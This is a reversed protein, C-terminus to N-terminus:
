GRRGHGATGRVQRLTRKSRPPGLVEALIIGEALKERTFALDQRYVPSSEDRIASPRVSMMKEEMRRQRIIADQQSLRALEERASEERLAESLPKPVQHREHVEEQKEAPEKRSIQKRNNHGGASHKETSKKIKGAASSIIGILVIISWINNLILDTLSHM